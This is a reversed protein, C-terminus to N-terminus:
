LLIKVSETNKGSFNHQTGPLNPSSVENIRNEYFVEVSNFGLFHKM